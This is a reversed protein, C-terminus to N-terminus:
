QLRARLAAHIQVLLLMTAISSARLVEADPADWISVADIPGHAQGILQQRMTAIINEPSDAQSMGIPRGEMYVIYWDKQAM